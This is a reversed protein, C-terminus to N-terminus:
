ADTASPRREPTGSSNLSSTSRSSQTSEGALRSAELAEIGTPWPFLEAPTAEFVAALALMAEATFTAQGREVRSVWSQDRRLREALAGQTVFAARRRRRVNDGWQRALRQSPLEDNNM